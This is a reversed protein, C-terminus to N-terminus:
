QAEMHEILANAMEHYQPPITEKAKEVQEVTECADLIKNVRELMKEEISADTTVSLTDKRNLNAGFLDGIHDCADKIARTKAIPVAMPVAGTNVNSMDMRLPGSDKNTQLEAAGVGDHWMWEGSVPHLYHVRVSCFVANMMLKTEKEEIRYSRFIKKLLYEIKDIPLYRYNKIYPHTKIWKQPPEQNVLLNFQDNAFAQQLNEPKTLEAITPLTTKKTM